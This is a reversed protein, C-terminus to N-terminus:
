LNPLYITREFDQKIKGSVTLKINVAVPFSKKDDWTDKWKLELSGPDIFGYSLAFSDINGALEQPETESRDNLADKDIRCLMTLTKNEFKYDVFAYHKLMAGQSFKDVLTLLGMENSSGFFKTEDKSYAFSNRLDLNLREFVIRASQYIDINEGIDKYGFLGTNFTLYISVMVVSFISSAILLEVLTIARNTKIM